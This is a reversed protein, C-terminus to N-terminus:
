GFEGRASPLFDGVQRVRDQRVPTGRFDSVTHYDRLLTGPQDIRVGLRLALLDEIPDERRRGSAAALLGVIGSKTPQADTQRWNFESSSGWSQMPGALRLVLSRDTM